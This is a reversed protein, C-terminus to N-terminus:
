SDANTVFHSENILFTQVPILINWSYELSKTNVYFTVQLPVAHKNPKKKVLQPSTSSYWFTAASDFHFQDLGLLVKKHQVLYYVIAVKRTLLNAKKLFEALSKINNTQKLAMAEM